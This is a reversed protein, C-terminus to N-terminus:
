LLVLIGILWYNRYERNKSNIKEFLGLMHAKHTESENEGFRYYKRWYKERQSYIIQTLAFGFVLLVLWTM